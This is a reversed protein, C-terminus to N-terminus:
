IPLRPVAAVPAGEGDILEAAHIRVRAVAGALDDNSRQAEAILSDLQPSGFGRWWDAAPWVSDAASGASEQWQTPVKIEPGKYAPGVSCGGLGGWLAAFLAVTSAM